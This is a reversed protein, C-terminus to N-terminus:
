SSFVMLSRPSYPARGDGARRPGFPGDGGAFARNIADQRPVADKVGRAADTARWRRGAPIQGGTCRAARFEVTPVEDLAQHDGLPRFDFNERHNRQLTAQRAGPGPQGVRRDSREVRHQLVPSGHPQGVIRLKIVVRPKLPRMLMWVHDTPHHPDTQLQVHDGHKRRRALMPKLVTELVEVPAPLSCHPPAKVM